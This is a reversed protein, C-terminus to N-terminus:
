FVTGNGMTAFGPSATSPGSLSFNPFAMVQAPNQGMAGGTIADAGGPGAQPSMGKIMGSAASLGSGIIGTWFDVGLRSQAESVQSEADNIRSLNEQYTLDMAARQNGYNQDIGLETRGAYGAAAAENEPGLIGRQGLSAQVDGSRAYLAQNQNVFQGSLKSSQLNFSYGLAAKEQELQSQRQSLQSNGAMLNYVASFAGVAGQAVAMLTMPDM